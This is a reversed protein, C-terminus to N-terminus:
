LRARPGLMRDITQPASKPKSVDPKDNWPGWRLSMCDSYYCYYYYDDDDYYHHGFFSSCHLSYTYQIPYQQCQSSLLEGSSDIRGQVAGPESLAVALRWVPLMNKPIAVKLGLWVATSQLTREQVIPVCLLHLFSWGSSCMCYRRWREWKSM